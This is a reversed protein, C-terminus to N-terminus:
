GEAAVEIVRNMTGLANPVCHPCALGDEVGPDCCWQGDVVFKYEYRGPTLALETRWSEENIRQMPHSEPNWDNFTGALAVAVANSAHCEFVTKSNRPTSEKTRSM